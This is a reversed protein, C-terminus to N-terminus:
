ATKDYVALDEATCVQELLPCQLLHQMIHPETGCECNLDQNM